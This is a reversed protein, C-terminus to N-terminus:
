ANNPFHPHLIGSYRSGGDELVSCELSPFGGLSSRTKVISQNRPGFREDVFAGVM